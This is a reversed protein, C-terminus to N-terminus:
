QCSLQRGRRHDHLRAQSLIPARERPHTDVFMIQVTKSRANDELDKVLLGSINKGRQRHEVFLTEIRISNTLEDYIALLRGFTIQDHLAELSIRGGTSSYPNEMEPVRNSEPLVESYYRELGDLSARKNHAYSIHLIKM